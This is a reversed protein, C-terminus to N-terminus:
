TIILYNKLLMKFYNNIEPIDKEMVGSLSWFCGNVTTRYFATRLFTRFILSFCRHRLTKKLVTPLRWGTAKSFFLCEPAPTKLFVNKMSLRQAAAELYLTVKLSSNLKFMPQVHKRCYVYRKIDFYYKM